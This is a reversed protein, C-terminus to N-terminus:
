ITRYLAIVGIVIFLVSLLWWILMAWQYPYWTIHPPLTVSEGTDRVVERIKMLANDMELQSVSGSDNSIRYLIRETTAKAGRIQNYWIGVDASPSHFIFASNGSTLNSEEIHQLAKELFMDAREVTPADGALKLYDGCNKGFDYWLLISVIVVIIFSIVGIFIVVLFGKM